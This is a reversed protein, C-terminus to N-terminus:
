WIKKQKEPGPFDISKFNNDSFSKKWVHWFEFILAMNGPHAFINKNQKTPDKVGAKKPDQHKKLRKKQRAHSKSLTQL